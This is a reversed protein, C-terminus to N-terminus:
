VPPSTNRWVSLAVDRMMVTLGPWEDVPFHTLSHMVKQHIQHRNPRKLRVILIGQHSEERHQAFGKDTTILLRGQQQALQWIVADESGEVATGRIDLVEHGMERLQKVTMLPINEDILIKM